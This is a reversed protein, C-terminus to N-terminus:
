NNMLETLISTSLITKKMDITLKIAEDAGVQYMFYWVMSLM